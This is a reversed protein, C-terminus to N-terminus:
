GIRLNALRDIEARIKALGAHTNIKELRSWPFSHDFALNEWSKVRSCGVYTLGISNELSGIGLIVKKLTLGQAKHITIAWGLVLPFQIRSGSKGCSQDFPVTEPIIPVIHRNSNTVASPGHYEDFEVLICYPPSSQPVDANYVVGRVTGLSGNYLGRSQWINKTLM